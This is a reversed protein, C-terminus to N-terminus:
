GFERFAESRAMHWTALYTPRLGYRECTQQFRGLYGANHTTIVRPRSWLNDGEADITILFAPKRVPM